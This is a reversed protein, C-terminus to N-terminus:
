TAFRHQLLDVASAADVATLDAGLRGALDPQQVFPQGGVMILPAEDGLAGRLAQIMHGARPVHPLLAVSLAVVDPARERVMDVLGEAPVTAGLFTTDWGVMELLDCLMRLGMEHREVDVCAAILTRGHGGGSLDFLEAYLNAMCMQTIATALHEDAVSIQNSQWLQGIQWMAPQFVELYLQRLEMGAERADNVVERARRRDGALLTQLYRERFEEASM